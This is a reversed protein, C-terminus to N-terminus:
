LHYYCVCAQTVFATPNKKLKVSKSIPSTPTQIAMGTQGVTDTFLICWMVIESNNNMDRLCHSASCVSSSQLDWIDLLSNELGMRAFSSLFSWSLAVLALSESVAPEVMISYDCSLIGMSDPQGYLPILVRKLAKVNMKAADGFM